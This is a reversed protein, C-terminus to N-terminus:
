PLVEIELPIDYNNNGKQSISYSIIRVDRDTNTLFDPFCFSLACDKIINEVFDLFIVLQESDLSLTGSYTRIKASTKRRTKAPGREPSSRLVNDEPTMKWGIDFYPLATPWYILDDM